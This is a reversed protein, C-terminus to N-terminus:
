LDQKEVIDVDHFEKVWYRVHFDESMCQSKTEVKSVSNNKITTSVKLIQTPGTTEDGQLAQLMIQLSERVSHKIAEEIIGDM